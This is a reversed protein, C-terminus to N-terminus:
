KHKHKHKHEEAPAEGEAGHIDGGTAPVAELPKGTELESVLGLRLLEAAAKDNLEVIQGEAWQEIEIDRMAFERVTASGINRLIKFEM